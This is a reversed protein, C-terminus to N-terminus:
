RGVESEGWRGWRDVEKYYISLVGYFLFRLSISNFYKTSLLCIYICNGFEIWSHNNWFSKLLVLM